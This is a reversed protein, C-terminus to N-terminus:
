YYKHNNTLSYSVTNASSIQLYTHIAIIQIRSYYNHNYYNQLLKYVTSYYNFCDQSM